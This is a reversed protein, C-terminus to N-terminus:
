QSPRLLVAREMVALSVLDDMAQGELSIQFFEDLLAEELLVDKHGLCNQLLRVGWRGLLLVQDSLVRRDVSCGSEGESPTGKQAREKNQMKFLYQQM